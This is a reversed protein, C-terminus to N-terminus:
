ADRSMLSEVAAQLGSPDLVPASCTKGACVYAAPVPEGPLSLAELLGADRGPDLLQVSRGPVPVRLAARHLAGAAAAPGVIRIEPPPNLCVDVVRAYSAAFPGLNEYVGAFAELTKQATRRHEEEQTLAHLRLFVEACVANDQALRQREALRGVDEAADWLDYFGAGGPSAFREAIFRALAAAREFQVADGTVEYADLFARAALAQDALIGPAGPGRGDHYHYLGGEPARMTGWLYHLAAVATDALEPRDLTWSGELYASAALANWGAYCRRDIFPEPRGERQAAPLRYFEEDADQSGYFFGRGHDRLRSDLYDIVRGAGAAHAPDGTIRYLGLLCRLLGANDELMKEYHPETWDRRTSYRFFGGWEHDFLGGGLMAELTRRAMHLVDPDGSRQHAHLLLAISETQPFKPADGFGGYVPDYSDAVARLVSAFIDPTLPSPPAVALSARRQRIEAAKQAVEDRHERYYASVQALLERMQEPPVYTAGALVEGEPTLFATTPWGGMNYRANVDPRQDNDVRVPIFHGNALRIVEPDSYSTEDM